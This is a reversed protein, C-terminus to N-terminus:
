LMVTLEIYWMDDEHQEIQYHWGVCHGNICEADQFCGNNCSEIICDKWGDFETENEIAKFFRNVATKWTKCFTLMDACVRNEYRVIDVVDIEYGNDISLEYNDFSNFHRVKM